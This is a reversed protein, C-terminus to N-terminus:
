ALGSGMAMIKLSKSSGYGNKLTCSHGGGGLMCFKDSVDTVSGQSGPDSIIVVNAYSVLFVTVKGSGGEYVTVLSGNSNSSSITISSGATISVSTTTKIQGFNTTTGVGGGSCAIGNAFAALGASSISLRKSGGTYFQQEGTSSPMYHVLNESADYQIYSSAAGAKYFRVTTSGAESKDLILEGGQGLKVTGVNLESAM